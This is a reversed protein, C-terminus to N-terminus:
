RSAEQFTSLLSCSVQRRAQGWTWEGAGPAWRCAAAPSSSYFISLLFFSFSISWLLLAWKSRTCVPHLFCFSLMKRKSPTFFLSRFLARSLTAQTVRTPSLPWVFPQRPSAPLWMQANLTLESCEMKCLLLWTAHFVHLFLASQGGSYDIDSPIHGLIHFSGPCVSPTGSVEM